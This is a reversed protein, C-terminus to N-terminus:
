TNKKKSEILQNVKKFGIEKLIMYKGSIKSRRKKTM